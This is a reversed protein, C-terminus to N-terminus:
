RAMRGRRREVKEGRQNRTHLATDVKEVLGDRGPSAGEDGPTGTPSFFEVAADVADDAEVFVFFSSRRIYKV